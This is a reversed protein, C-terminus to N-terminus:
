AGSMDCATVSPNLGEESRYEATLERREELLQELEVRHISSDGDSARMAKRVKVIAENVAQLAEWATTIGDCHVLMTGEDLQDGDNDVEILIRGGATDTLIKRYGDSVATATHGSGGPATWVIKGDSDVVLTGTGIGSDLYVYKVTLGTIDNATVHGM